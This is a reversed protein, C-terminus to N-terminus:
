RSRALVAPGPEVTQTRIATKISMQTVAAYQDRGKRRLDIECQTKGSGRRLGEFGGELVDERWGWIPDSRVGYRRALLDVFAKASQLDIVARPREEVSRRRPREGDVEERDEEDEVIDNDM